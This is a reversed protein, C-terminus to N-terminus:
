KLIEFGDGITNKKVIHDRFYKRASEIRHELLDDRHLFEIEEKISFDMICNSQGLFGEV